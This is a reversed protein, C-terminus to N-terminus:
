GRCAEKTDTNRRSVIECCTPAVPFDHIVVEETFLEIVECGEPVVANVPEDKVSTGKCEIVKIRYRALDSEVDLPLHQLLQYLENSSMDNEM